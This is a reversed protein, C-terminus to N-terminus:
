LAGTRPSGSALVGKGHLFEQQGGGGGKKKGGKWVVRGWDEKGKLTEREGQSGWDRWGKAALLRNM